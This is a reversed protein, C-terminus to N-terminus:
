ESGAKYVKAFREHFFIREYQGLSLANTQAVPLVDEILMDFFDAKVIYEPYVHDDNYVIIERFTRNLKLRDLPSNDVWTVSMM